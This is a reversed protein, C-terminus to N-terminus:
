LEYLLAVLSTLNIWERKDRVTVRIAKRQSPKGKNRLQVPYVTKGIVVERKSVSITKRFIRKADKIKRYAYIAKRIESLKKLGRISIPDAMSSDIKRAIKRLVAPHLDKNWLNPLLKIEPYKEQVLQLVEVQKKCATHDELLIEVMDLIAKSKGQGKLTPVFVRHNPLADLEKFEPFLRKLDKVADKTKGDLLRKFEALNRAKAQFAKQQSLLGNTAM